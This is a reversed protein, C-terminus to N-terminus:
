AGRAERGDEMRQMSTEGEPHSAQLHSAREPFPASLGPTMCAPGPEM